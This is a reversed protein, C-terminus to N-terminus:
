PEEIVEFLPAPVARGVLDLTWRHEGAAAFGTDAFFSAAPANKKTPIFEGRLLTAGHKAAREAVAGLLAHEVRRGLVRCSMLFADLRYAAGDPVALAVGVLGSDGYRDAVRMWLGIAGPQALLAALEGESYRRTTVNFQNTKGLLQAVRPLTAPGIPGITVRMGLARLFEEPSAVTKALERRHVDQQYQAARKKDDATVVLHDFAGSADLAEVYRWPQAPVDIVTVDPLQEHVWAREVPNDDFFALADIGIDLTQAIARLSSAKDNWHIERAAFDDLRLVLDAHAGFLEVVDAENNKSAIALLVGRDRYSRLARQFRKFASGPYEEGLAIGGIGDEGLVGGWLTNDLDLVLCKCPPAVLARLNRALRQGVALQAAGSLPCRALLELKADFWQALGVETAARAADFIRAGPVAALARALRENLQACAATQSRELAPDALGAALRRPPPQNWVLVHASSRERIARALNALREVHAGIAAEVDATLFGDGLADDALAAIVIADPAAGYLPSAADLAQQELQGFPATTTEIALGRRAGEVALYPAVLDFTFTSLVGLKVTRLRERLVPETAIRRAAALMAAPKGDTSALLAVLDPESM